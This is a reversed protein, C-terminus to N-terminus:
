SLPKLFLLKFVNHKLGLLDSHSICGVYRKYRGNKQTHSNQKSANNSTHRILNRKNGVVSTKMTHHIDSTDRLKQHKRQDLIKIEFIKNEDQPM